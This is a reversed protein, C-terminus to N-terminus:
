AIPMVLHACIFGYSIKRLRFEGYEIDFQLIVTKKQDVFSGLDALVRLLERDERALCEVWIDDSCQANLNFQNIVNIMAVMECGHSTVKTLYGTGSLTFNAKKFM